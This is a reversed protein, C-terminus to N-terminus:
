RTVLRHVTPTQSCTTQGDLFEFTANHRSTPSVTIRSASAAATYAAAYSDFQPALTASTISLGTLLLDCYPLGTEALDNVPVDRLEEPICRSLQNRSLYLRRLNELRSLESPISGTLQNRSLGLEELKTLRSLEVPITGTLGNDFLWLGKMQPLRGLEAPISGVLRNGRLELEQLRTLRSLESPISGTLQNHPLYLVRLYTLNGFDSPIGGTLENNGLRLDYMQALRALESPIPGTLRNNELNVSLLGTLSGLEPPITGSLGKRFLSISTVRTPTFGTRIGDWNAIPTSASWNLTATGALTERVELLTTCDAVLGPNNAADPVAGDTACPAADTTNGTAIASPQGTGAPNIASVRYHRTTGATLGTHSYGTTTSRTNSVLDSWTSGDTSVEIRYGTISAGGTSSPAGWSLDIRTQGNATATLNRPAGPPSVPSATTGTVTASWPGEGAANVARVQVDYRTGGTLGALTHTLSGSGTWVGKAM